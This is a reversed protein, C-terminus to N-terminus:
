FKYFYHDRAQKLNVHKLPVTQFNEYNYLIRYGVASDVFNGWGLFKSKFGEGREKSRAFVIRGETVATKRKRFNRIFSLPKCTTKKWKAEYKQSDGMNNSTNMIQNKFQQTM